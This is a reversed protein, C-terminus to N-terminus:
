VETIEFNMLMGEVSTVTAVVNLPEGDLDMGTPVFAPPDAQLPHHQM